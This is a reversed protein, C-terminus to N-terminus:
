AMNGWVDWGEHSGRAFMELKRGHTYLTDIIERFVEPKRSHETREVSQVSDFLKKIDPTCSGRTAILLFEHRVSNYHGMNHAIKDWVFSSKYKFGWSNIIKFSDELMPSTVWLFLVSDDEAPVPLNAIDNLPMTPYHKQAGGLTEIDQKDNYQWPPDAYIVRYKCPPNYLDISKDAQEIQEEISNEREARLAERKEDKIAKLVAQRTVLVGNERAEAKVREVVEPHKAITELREATDNTIHAEDDFKALPTNKTIGCQQPNVMKYQSGHFSTDRKVQSRLEGLRVEADLVAEAIEQGEALKQQYVEAAVGVKDIARIAARVAQLRDRGILVFRSLDELNTPLNSSQIIMEEM